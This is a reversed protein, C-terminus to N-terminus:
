RKKCIVQNSYKLNIRDYSNWGHRSLGQDYLLKLNIRKLKEYYKVNTEVIKNIKDLLRM